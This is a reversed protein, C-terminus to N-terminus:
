KLTFAAEVERQLVISPNLLLLMVRPSDAQKLVANKAAPDIEPPVALGCLAVTQGDPVSVTTQISQKRLVPRQIFKGPETQPKGEGAPAFPENEMRLLTSIQPQVTLTVWKRDANCTGTIEMRVGPEVTQVVPEWGDKGAEGAPRWSAIYAHQTSVVVAARQGNFITLRPSSLSNADPMNKLQGLLETAQERDLFFSAGKPDAKATAAEIRSRWTGEPLKAPDILVFRSEIMIQVSRQERLKTLLTAIQAHVDSTHSVVLQGGLERITGLTGGASTWTGAAITDRVLSVIQDVLQQHTPAAMAPQTATGGLTALRRQLFSATVDRAIELQKVNPSGSGQTRRQIELNMDLATLKANLEKVQADENQNQPPLDFDPVIQLLDRIDYTRTSLDGRAIDDASSVKVTGEDIKWGLPQTSQLSELMATLIKAYSADRLRISVTADAFVGAQNLAKWLVMVNTGSAREFREFATEIPTSELIFEAAREDLKRRTAIDKSDTAPQTTAGAVNVAPAPSKAEQSRADTVALAALGLVLTGAFLRHALRKDSPEFASINIIRLRLHRGSTAMRLAPRAVGSRVQAFGLLLHGYSARAAAPTQCLVAEDCASEREQRLRRITLWAIPNFWHVAGILRSLFEIQPDLRRVHTVEHLLVMRLRDDTLTEVCDIPLLVTPRLVGFVAPTSLRGTLRLRVHRPLTQRVRDIVAQQDARLEVREKRLLLAFRVHQFLIWVILGCAVGAWAFLAIRAGGPGGAPPTIATSVSPAAADSSTTTLPYTEVRVRVAGSVEAPLSAAPDTFPMMAASPFIPWVFLPPVALRLLVMLWMAHRSAPSLRSGLVFQIALVVGALAASQWTSRWLWDLVTFADIQPFGNM